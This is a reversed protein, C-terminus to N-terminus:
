ILIIVRSYRRVRRVVDEISANHGLGLVRYATAQCDEPYRDCLMDNALLVDDPVTMKQYLRAARNYVASGFLREWVWFNVEYSYVASTHWEVSGRKLKEREGDQNARRVLNNLVFECGSNVVYTLVQLGMEGGFFILVLRM